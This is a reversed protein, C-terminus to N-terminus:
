NGVDSKSLITRGEFYQVFSLKIDDDIMGQWGDVDSTLPVQEGDKNVYDVNEVRLCHTDFFAIRAAHLNKGAARPTRSSLMPKHLSRLGRALADSGRPPFFARIEEEESGDLSIVVETEKGIVVPM